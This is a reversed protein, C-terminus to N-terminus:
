GIKTMHDVTVSKFGLLNAQKVVENIADQRDGYCFITIKGKIRGSKGYGSFRADYQIGHKFWSLKRDSM